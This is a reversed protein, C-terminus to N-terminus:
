RTAGTQSNWRPSIVTRLFLPNRHTSGKLAGGVRGDENASREDERGEEGTFFVHFVHGLCSSYYRHRNSAFFSSEVVIYMYIHTDRGTWTDKFNLVLFNMTGGAAIGVLRVFPNIIVGM